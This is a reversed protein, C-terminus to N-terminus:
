EIGREAMIRRMKQIDVHSSTSAKAVDEPIPKDSARNRHADNAEQESFLGAEDFNATYGAGGERWWVVSNGVYVRTDQIYYRM